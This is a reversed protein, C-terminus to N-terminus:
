FGLGFGASVTVGTMKSPDLNFLGGYDIIGATATLRMLHLDLNLGVTKKWAPGASTIDMWITNLLSLYVGFESTGLDPIGKYHAGIEAIPFDYLAAVSIEMPMKVPIPEPLKSLKEPLSEKPETESMELNVLSAEFSVSAYGEYGLNAPVVSINSVGGAVKVDGFKAMAGIDLYYGFNGTLGNLDLEEFNEFSPLVSLLRVNGNVKVEVSAKEEDSSYYFHAKSEKDFWLLPLYTGGSLAIFYKDKIGIGFVGGVKAFLGGSLINFTSEKTEGIEANGFIVEMLEHPLMLSINSEASAGIGFRASGVGIGLYESISLAPSLYLGGKLLNLRSKDLVVKEGKAMKMMDEVSFLNQNLDLSVQFESIDLTARPNDFVMVPNSPWLFNAFGFYVAPILVLLILKKM